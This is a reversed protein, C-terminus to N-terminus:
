ARPQPHPRPTRPPSLPVGGAGRVGGAGGGAPPGVRVVDAEVGGADGHAGVPADGNPGVPEDGAGVDGGDAVDGGPGHQGVLPGGFADHGGFGHAPFPRREIGGGDGQDDEGVGLHGAGAVGFVAGPLGAQGGFGDGHRDGGEAPGGGHAGAVPEGLEDDVTVAVGDHAHVDDPGVGGVEDGFADQGDFQGGGGAVEGGGDVGVGREGFADVFRGASVDVGGLLGSMMLASVMSRLPRTASIVPPPRPM